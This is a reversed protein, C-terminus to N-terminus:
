RFSQLHTCLGSWSELLRFHTQHPRLVLFCSIQELRESRWCVSSILSCRAGAVVVGCSPSRRLGDLSIPGSRRVFAGRAVDDQERSSLIRTERTPFHPVVNGSCATAVPSAGKVTAEGTQSTARPCSRPQRIAVGILRRLILICMLFANPRPLSATPRVGNSRACLGLTM